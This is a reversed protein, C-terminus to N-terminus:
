PQMAGERDLVALLDDVSYVVGTVGGSYAIETLFCWQDETAKNPHIKAEIALFKGNPLVGIIDSIGPYGFRVFRNGFKAAGTNVRWAFVGRAKLVALCAKVLSTENYHPRDGTKGVKSKGLPKTPRTQGQKYAELDATTIRSM